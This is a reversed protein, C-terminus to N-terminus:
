AGNSKIWTLVERVFEEANFFIIHNNLVERFLNDAMVNKKFFDIPYCKITIEVGYLSSIKKVESKEYGGIIFIDLDSDKKENLKAYSGFIMGMGGMSHIIKSVVEKIIPKNELFSILKYHEALIIYETAIDSKKISYAKIKGKIKSELVAKTEFDDLILQATRPSINLLKQVERIYFERSFGQTFLSLIQLHNETINVKKYM